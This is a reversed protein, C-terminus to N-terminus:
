QKLFRVVNVSSNYVRKALFFFLLTAFGIWEMLSLRLKIKYVTQFLVSSSDNLLEISLQCFYPKLLQLSVDKAKENSYSKRAMTAGVLKSIIDQDVIQLLLMNATSLQRSLALFQMLTCTKHTRNYCMHIM